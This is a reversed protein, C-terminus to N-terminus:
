MVKTIPKCYNVPLQCEKEIIFYYFKITCQAFVMINELFFLGNFKKIRENIKKFELNSNLIMWIM